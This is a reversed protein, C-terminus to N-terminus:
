SASDTSSESISSETRARRAARKGRARSKGVPEGPKGYITQQLVTYASLVNEGWKGEVYARCLKLAPVGEMGAGILGLRLTHFVDQTKWHGHQLRNAIVLPGADCLTQLEELQAMRLCFRHDGDAWTLDIIGLSM